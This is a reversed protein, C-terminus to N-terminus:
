QFYPVVSTVFTGNSFFIEDSKHLRNQPLRTTRFYIQIKIQTPTFIENKWRIWYNKVLNWCPFANLFCNQHILFITLESLHLWHLAFIIVNSSFYIVFKAEKVYKGRHFFRSTTPPFWHKWDRVIPNKPIGWNLLHPFLWKKDDASSTNFQLLYIIKYIQFYFLVAIWKIHFQKKITHYKIWNHLFKLIFIYM